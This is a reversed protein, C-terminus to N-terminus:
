QPLGGYIKSLSGMINKVETDSHASQCFIIEAVYGTFFTSVNSGIGDDIAADSNQSNTGSTGGIIASSRYAGDFWISVLDTSYNTVNVAVHFQTDQNIHSAVAASETVRRAGAFIENNGAGSNIGISHRANSASNNFNVLSQIGTGSTRKFVIYSTIGALNKTLGVSTFTFVDNTGDFEWAPFSNIINTRFKPQNGSTAQKLVTFNGSFDIVRSVGTNDTIDPMLRAAYWAKIGTVASFNTICDGTIRSNRKLIRSNYQLVRGM